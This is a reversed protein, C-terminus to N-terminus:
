VYLVEVDLVDMTVMGRDLDGWGDLRSADEVGNRMANDALMELGERESMPSGDYRTYPFGAATVRDLWDHPADDRVNVVVTASCPLTRHWESM